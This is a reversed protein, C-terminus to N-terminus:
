FCLIVAQPLKELAQSSSKLMSIFEQFLFKAVDATKAIM